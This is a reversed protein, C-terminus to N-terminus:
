FMTRLEIGYIKKMSEAVSYRLENFQEISYYVNFEEGNQLKYSLLIVPKM